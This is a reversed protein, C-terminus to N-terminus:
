SFNAVLDLEDDSNKTEFRKKPKYFRDDNQASIVYPNLFLSYLVQGNEITSGGDGGLKKGYNKELDLFADFIEQCASFNSFILLLSIGNLFFYSFPACSESM